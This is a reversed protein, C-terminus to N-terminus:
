NERDLVRQIETTLLDKVTKGDAKGRLEKMVVGMLGDVAGMGHKRVYDIRETVTTRVMSEVDTSDVKELLGTASLADKVTSKPNKALHALIIPIAEPSVAGKAVAKFLSFLHSEELNHTPIGDRQLSVITNELTVAVLTPSIELEQVVHEFIQLNLSRVIQTSLNSSLGYETVFRTEKHDLSEPMNRKIRKLRSATIKVPRVDTEPYMRGAGPRPRAYKSTGDPLPIRTEVPVGKTTAKARKIVADLADHCMTEDAAVVVVADIEEAKVAERLGKVESDTIGYHPLEDTHFIGGIGSWFRAYDALETGLRRGPQVEEGV